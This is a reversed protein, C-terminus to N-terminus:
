LSRLTGLLRFQATSNPLLTPPPMQWQVHRFDADDEIAGFFRSALTVSQAEGEVVVDRDTVTMNTLRIGSEPLNNVLHHLIELPYFEPEVTSAVLEWARSTPMFADVEDALRDREATAGAIQFQLFGLWALALVLLLAYAGASALVIQKIRLVRQSRDIALLASPPQWTARQTPVRPALTNKPSKSWKAGDPLAISKESFAAHPDHWEIWRAVTREAQLQTAALRLWLAIEEDSATTDLTEWAVVTDGRTFCLVWDGGERWITASDGPLTMMLPGADFQRYGLGSEAASLDNPFLSVAVLTRGDHEDVKRTQVITDAAKPPLLGNVELELRIAEDLGEPDVSPIWFAGGIVQRAPVALIDDASTAPPPLVPMEEPATDFNGGAGIRWVEWHESMPRVFRRSDDRKRRVSM